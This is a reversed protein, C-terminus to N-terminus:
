PRQGSAAPTAQQVLEAYPRYYHIAFGAFSPVRQLATATERMVRHLEAAGLESFTLRSSPLSQRRRIRWHRVGELDLDLEAFAAGAEDAPASEILVFKMEDGDLGAVIWGEEAHGGAPPGRRGKDRFHLLEEDPLDTTELGVLVSKGVESAYVLEHESLAVTGNSGTAETRYDMIAVRDARDIILEALPRARGDGLPVNIGDFWFPIAVELTLDAERTLLAVQELLVLYDAILAARRDDGFEPLLYPEIDYHVGMFRSAPAVRANYDILNAVTRLVESHNGARAYEPAGDLAFVSTGTESLRRALPALAQAAADIDPESRVLDGPIQLYAASFGAQAVFRAMAEAEHTSETLERTHWVWLTPGAVEAERTSWSPILAPSDDASSCLAPRDIDLVGSSDPEAVLVLKSLRTRDIGDPLADLRIRALQWDGDLAGRQLHEDLSGLTIADDREVGARDAIELRVRPEGAHARVWFALTTLESADLYYVTQDDPSPDHLGLSLGAHASGQRDLSARLVGRGTADEHLEASAFSPARFFARFRGGLRNRPSTEFESLVLCGDGLAPRLASIAIDPQREDVLELEEVSLTPGESRHSLRLIGKRIDSPRASGAETATQWTRLEPWAGRSAGSAPSAVAALLLAVAARSTRSVIPSTQSM